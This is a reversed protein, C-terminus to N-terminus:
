YVENPIEISDLLHVVGLNRGIASFFRGVWEPDINHEEMLDYDFLVTTEDNDLMVKFGLHKNFRILNWRFEDDNDDFMRQFQEVCEKYKTPSVRNCQEIFNRTYHHLKDGM